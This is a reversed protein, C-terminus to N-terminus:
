KFSVVEFKGLEDLKDTKDARPAAAAPTTPASDADVMRAAMTRGAVSSATSAVKSIIDPRNLMNMAFSSKVTLLLDGGAISADVQTPDTLLLYLGFPM